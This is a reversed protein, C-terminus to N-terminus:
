AYESCVSILFPFSYYSPFSSPPIPHRHLSCAKSCASADADQLGASRSSSRCSPGAKTLLLSFTRTPFGTSHRSTTAVSRTYARRPQSVAKTTCREVCRTASRLFDSCCNQLVNESLKRKTPPIFCWLMANVHCSSWLMNVKEGDHLCVFIYMGVWCSFLLCTRSMDLGIGGPTHARGESGLHLLRFSMM